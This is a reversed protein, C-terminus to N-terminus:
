IEMLLDLRVQAVWTFIISKIPEWSQIMTEEMETTLSM